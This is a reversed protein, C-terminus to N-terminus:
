ENIGCFLEGKVYWIYYLWLIAHPPDLFVPTDVFLERRDGAFNQLPVLFPLIEGYEGPRRAQAQNLTKVVLRQRSLPFPM